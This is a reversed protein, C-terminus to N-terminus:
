RAEPKECSEILDIKWVSERPSISSLEGVIFRYGGDAVPDLCVRFGGREPKARLYYNEVKLNEILGAILKRTAKEDNPHPGAATKGTLLIDFSQPDAAMAAGSSLFLVLFLSSFVVKM